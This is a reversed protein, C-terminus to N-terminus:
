HKLKLNVLIYLKSNFTSFSSNLSGSDTGGVRPRVLSKLIRQPWCVCIANTQYLNIWAIEWGRNKRVSKDICRILMIQGGWPMEPIDVDSLSINKAVRAGLAWVTLVM